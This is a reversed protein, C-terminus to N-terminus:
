HPSSKSTTINLYCLLGHPTVTQPKITTNIMFIQEPDLSRLFPCVFVCGYELMCMCLCICVWVHMFIYVPVCFFIIYTCITGFTYVCAYEHVYLCVYACTFTYVHMDVWVHMCICLSVPVYMQINVCLMCMHLCLLVCTCVHMPRCVSSCLHPVTRLM